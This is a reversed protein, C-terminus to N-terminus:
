SCQCLWYLTESFLFLHQRNELLYCILCCTLFLVFLSGFRREWWMLRGHRVGILLMMIFVRISSKRCNLLPSAYSILAYIWPEFLRGISIKRKACCLSLGITLLIRLMSECSSPGMTSILMLCISSSGRRRGQPMSVVIIMRSVCCCCRSMSIEWCFIDFALYHRSTLISRISM